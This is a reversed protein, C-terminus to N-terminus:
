VRNESSGPFTELARNVPRPIIKAVMARPRGEGPGRTASSRCRSAAASVRQTGARLATLRFTRPARRRGHRLSRRVRDRGHDDADAPRGRTPLATGRPSASPTRRSRTSLSRLIAAIAGAQLTRLVADRLLGHAIGRGQISRPSTIRPASIHRAHFGLPEQRTGRGGLRDARAANPQHAPKLAIPPNHARRRPTLIAGCFHSM